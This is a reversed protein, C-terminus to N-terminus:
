CDSHERIAETNRNATEREKIPAVKSSEQGPKRSERFTDGGYQRRTIKQPRSLKSDKYRKFLVFYNLDLKSAFL